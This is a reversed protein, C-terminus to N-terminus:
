KIDLVDNLLNQITKADIDLATQTKKFINEEESM